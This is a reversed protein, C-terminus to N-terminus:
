RGGDEIGCSRGEGAASTPRFGHETRTGGPVRRTKQRMACPRYSSRSDVGNPNAKGPHRNCLVWLQCLALKRSNDSVSVSVLGLPFPNGVQSSKRM